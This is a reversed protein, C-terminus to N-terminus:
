LGNVRTEGQSRKDRVDPAIKELGATNLPEGFELGAQGDKSWRITAPSLEGELLEILVDVGFSETPFDVNEIMAGTTSVNRIRVKKNQDNFKLIASRLINTRRNRFLKNIVVTAKGQNEEFKSVVDIISLPRGYVFGQVHCCGLDRIFYSEDRTEVGEATTEMGLTKALTVIAQIIAANRSGPTIAGRVFSQDIKIKDFPASKLYGLSSYGTGFDDLALRIGVGKLAKFMKASAAEDGLFVSETIELELRDPAIQAEAIASIVTTTLAPNTFQTPSVNVAVRVSEPLLAVDKAATRLVWEGIKEILGSEEAVPIFEVPSINGETPHDWRLLAEIGVIKETQTSVVLQYVLYFQGAPLALRLDDELQKRRKARELFQEEFFRHVGRGDAKAAYLALDANRILTEVDDGHEPSIALGISCGIRISHNNISYPQAVAEIIKSALAGLLGREIQRPVLVEFEDGGIRGVLGTEGVVRVIRQAVQKLLEDGTQHGLTDNIIKFMDLDLFMLAVPQSARPGQCLMQELAVLMRQRNALGTLSDSLALRKIEAEHNRIETLDTGSGVFGHFGGASDFLPRGSISWWSDSLGKVGRVRYGTFAIRSILNFGLSRAHDLGDGDFKFVDALLAGITVVRFEELRCAVKTSLYTIRGDADTEWFWRAEHDETYRVLRDARAVEYSEARGLEDNVDPTSDSKSRCILRNLFGGM